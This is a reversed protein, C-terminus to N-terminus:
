PFYTRVLQTYKELEQVAVELPSVIDNQVKVQREVLIGTLEDTSPKFLAALVYEVAQLAYKEAAPQEDITKLRILAANALAEVLFAADDALM